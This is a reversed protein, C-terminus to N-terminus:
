PKDRARKEAIGSTGRRRALEAWVDEPRVGKEAWLVLLHYLLDASESTVEAASGDLAAVLTETAEEGLKRAIGGIGRAYLSATYSSSPDDDRRAEVTAYLEELVAATAAPKEQSMM